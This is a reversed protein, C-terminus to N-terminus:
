GLIFGNGFRSEAHYDEIPDNSAVANLHLHSALTKWTAQNRVEGSSSIKVVAENQCLVKEKEAESLADSDVTSREIPKSSDGIMVYLWAAIGIAASGITVVTQFLSRKPSPSSANPPASANHSPDNNPPVNTYPRHSTQLQPSRVQPKPLPIAIQGLQHLQRPLRRIRSTHQLSRVTLRHMQSGM